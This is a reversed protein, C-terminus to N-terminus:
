GGREVLIPSEGHGERDARGVAWSACASACRVAALRLHAETAVLLDGARVGAARLRAADLSMVAQHGFAPGQPYRRDAVLLRDGARPRAPFFGASEPGFDHGAPLPPVALTASTGDPRIAIVHDTYENLAIAEGGHSGFSRPAVVLDGEAYEVRRAITTLRGRCDLGHLRTPGDSVTLVLVRHGFAGVDDYGLGAPVEGPPLGAFRRVRGRADVRYIARHGGPGTMYVDDRRWACGAARLPQRPTLVVHPEVARSTRLGRALTRLRRGPGLLRLDGYTAVVFRGDARPGAMDMIQPVTRRLEWRPADSPPTRAALGVAYLAVVAVLVRM